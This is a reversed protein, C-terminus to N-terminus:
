GRLSKIYDKKNLSGTVVSCYISEMKTIFVQRKINHLAFTSTQESIRVLCVFDTSLIYFKWALITNDIKNGTGAM